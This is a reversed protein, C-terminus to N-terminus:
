EIRYRTHDNVNYDHRCVFVHGSRKKKMENWNGRTDCGYDDNWKLQRIKYLGSHYKLVYNFYIEYESACSYHSVGVFNVCNLFAKWFSMGHIKEVSEFLETMIGRKFMMHHSIGSFPTQQTLGPLLKNMHDFYYQTHGYGTTFYPVSDDFFEVDNIFILDADLILFYESLNSIIQYAYLKLLQQYYWGFQYEPCGMRALIGVVENKGFAFQNEDIFIVSGGVFNEKAILYINRFGVVYKRISGILLGLTNKDKSHATIVIDYVMKGIKPSVNSTTHHIAKAKREAISGIMM